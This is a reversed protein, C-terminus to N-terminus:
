TRNRVVAGSSVDTVRAGLARARQGEGVAARWMAGGARASDAHTATIQAVARGYEDTVPLRRVHITSRSDQLVRLMFYVPDKFGCLAAISRPDFVNCDPVSSLDISGDNAFYADDVLDLTSSPLGTRPCRRWPGKSM